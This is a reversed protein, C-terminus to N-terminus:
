EPEAPVVVTPYDNTANVVTGPKLVPDRTPTVVFRLLVFVTAIFAMVLGFQVPTIEFWGLGLAMAFFATVAAMILSYERLVKQVLTM